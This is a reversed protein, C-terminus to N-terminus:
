PRLRGRGAAAGSRLPNPRGAKAKLDALIQRASAAYGQDGWQDAARLLAWAVLVDGDSANNMDDVAGADGSGSPRWRWALLRDKGIHLNRKTWAWLQDFQQRDGYGRPWCCATARGRATASGAM